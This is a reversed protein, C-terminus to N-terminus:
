TLNFATGVATGFTVNTAAFPLITTNLAVNVTASGGGAFAVIVTGATTANVLVAKGATTAGAYAVANLYASTTILPSSSNGVPKGDAGSKDMIIVPTTM